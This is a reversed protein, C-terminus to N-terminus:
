ATYTPTFLLLLSIFSLLHQQVGIPVCHKFAEEKLSLNSFWYKTLNNTDSDVPCKLTILKEKREAPLHFKSTEVLM